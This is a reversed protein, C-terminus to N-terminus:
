VFLAGGRGENCKLKVTVMYVFVDLHEVFLRLQSPSVKLERSSETLNFLFYFLFFHFTKLSALFINATIHM